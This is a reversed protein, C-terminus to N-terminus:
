GIIYRSLLQANSRCMIILSIMKRKVLIHLGKKIIYYHHWEYM